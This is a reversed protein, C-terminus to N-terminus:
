RCRARLGGRGCSFGRCCHARRNQGTRASPADPCRASRPVRLSGVSYRRSPNKRIGKPIAKQIGPRKEKCGTRTATRTKNRDTKQDQESRPTAQGDMRILDVRRARAHSSTQSASRWAFPDQAITANPFPWRGAWILAGCGRQGASAVSHRGQLGETAGAGWRGRLCRTIQSPQSKHHNAWGFAFFVHRAM